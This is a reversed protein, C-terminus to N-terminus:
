PVFLIMFCLIHLLDDMLQSARSSHGVTEIRYINSRLDNTTISIATLRIIDCIFIHFGSYGIKLLM